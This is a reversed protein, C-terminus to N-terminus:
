PVPRSGLRVADLEVEIMRAAWDPDDLHIHHGSRDNRAFASNSSLKALDEKQRRKEEQIEKFVAIQDAPMGAPAPDPRGGALVLLPKAGLPHPNAVREEHLLQLEEAWFDEILGPRKITDAEAWLRLRQAGAPLQDYPPRISPRNMFRQMDAFEKIQQPSAVPLEASEAAKPRPVLRKTAGERVRVIRGQYYLQTNEHTPDVLVLGAVENPYERAFVRAVLGGLSHGVLVVPRRVDGRELLMHIEWAERLMTRPNPGVDSWAYGARDFACVRTRSAVLSQVRTWDFSYDGAGSILFITPDGQGICHLHLRYGGVDILRGLPPPALSRPGEGIISPRSGCSVGALLLVASSVTRLRSLYQQM